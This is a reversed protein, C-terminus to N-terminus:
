MKLVAYSDIQTSFFLGNLATMPIHNSRSFSFMCKNFWCPRSIANLLQDILFHGMMDFEDAFALSLGSPEFTPILPHGGHSRVSIRSSVSIGLKQLPIKWNCYIEVALYLCSHETCNSYSLQSGLAQLYDISTQIPSHYSITTAM